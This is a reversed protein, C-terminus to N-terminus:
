GVQKAVVVLRGNTRSYECTSLCLLKDGYTATIGTDYLSLAQCEQVFADFAAEDSADVFNHYAFGKGVSATTIFVAMVEYTRMQQLSDFYIYPNEKRFQPDRYKDLQGLMSGDRMHHGFVTVNDSPTFVDSEPWVYLCGRDSEERDFNRHLYYDPEDPTQMVPYDIKTGPVTLWGVLDRNQGYLQVFEPLMSVTKGTQPDTVDVLAPPADTTIEGDQSIAPRPTQEPKMASLQDYRNQQIAGEIYYSALLGASILFIGAFVAILINYIWKKM